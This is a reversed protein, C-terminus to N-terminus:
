HDVICKMVWTIEAKLLKSKSVYGSISSRKDSALNPQPEPVPPPPPPVTPNSSDDDPPTADANSSLPPETSSRTYSSGGNEEGDTPDRKFGIQVLYKYRPGLHQTM